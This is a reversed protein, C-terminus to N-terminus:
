KEMIDKLGQFIEKTFPEELEGEHVLEFYVMETTKEDIERYTYRVSYSEDECTLTFLKDLEFEVVKYTNWVSDARRNKYVTGIKPPYEESIEEEICPIWLHTNKPNTTFEFVEQIPRNIIISIRNEKM